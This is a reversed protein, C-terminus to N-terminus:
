GLLSFHFFELILPVGEFVLISCGIIRVVANVVFHARILLFIFDCFQFFFQIIRLQLRLILIVLQKRALLVNFLVIFLLDFLLLFRLM